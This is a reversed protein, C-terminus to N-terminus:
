ECFWSIIRGNNMQRELRHVISTLLEGSVEVHYIHFFQTKTIVAKNEVDKPLDPTDLNPRTVVEFVHM